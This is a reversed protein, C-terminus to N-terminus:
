LEYIKFLLPSLLSQKAEPPPFIYSSRPGKFLANDLIQESNVLAVVAAAM